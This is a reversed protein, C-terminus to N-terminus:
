VASFENCNFRNIFPIIESLLKFFTNDCTQDIKRCANTHKTLNRTFKFALTYM